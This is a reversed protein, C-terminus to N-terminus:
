LRDKTFDNSADPTPRLVAEILEKIREERKEDLDTGKTDQVQQRITFALQSLQAPAFLVGLAFVCLWAIVFVLIKFALRM